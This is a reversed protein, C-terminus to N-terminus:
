MGIQSELSQEKAVLVAVKQQENGLELQNAQLAKTTVASKEKEDVLNAQARQM